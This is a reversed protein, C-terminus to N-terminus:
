SVFELFRSSRVKRKSPKTNISPSKLSLTLVVGRLSLCWFPSLDLPKWRQGTRENKVPELRTFPRRGAMARWRRLSRKSPQFENQIRWFCFCHAKKRMNLQGGYMAPLIIRLSPCPICLSMSASRSISQWIVLVPISIWRQEASRWVRFPIISTSGTCVVLCIKMKWPLFVPNFHLSLVRREVVVTQLVFKRLVRSIRPWPWASASTSPKFPGGKSTTVGESWYSMINDGPMEMLHQGSFIWAKTRLPQGGSRRPWLHTMTRTLRPTWIMLDANGPVSLIM